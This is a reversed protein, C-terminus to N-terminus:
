DSREVHQEPVACVCQSEADALIQVSVLRDGGEAVGTRRDVQLPLQLVGQDDAIPAIEGGGIRLKPAITGATNAPLTMHPQAGFCAPPDSRGMDAQHGCAPGISRSTLGLSRRGSRFPTLM